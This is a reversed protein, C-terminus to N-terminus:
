HLVKKKMKLLKNFYLQNVTNDNRSYLLTIWNYIYVCGSRELNEEWISSWLIKPLTGQATEQQGFVRMGLSPSDSVHIVVSQSPPSFVRRWGRFRRWMKTSNWGNGDLKVGWNLRVRSGVLVGWMIGQWQIRKRSYHGIGHIVNAM